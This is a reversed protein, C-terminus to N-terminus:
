RTRFMKEVTPAHQRTRAPQPPPPDVVPGDVRDIAMAAGVIGDPVETWAVAVTVLLEPLVGACFTVHDLLSRLTAAIVDVPRMVAAFFPLAVILAVDPM